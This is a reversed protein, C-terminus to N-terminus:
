DEEEKLFPFVISMKEIAKDYELFYGLLWAVPFTAAVLVVLIIVVHLLSMMLIDIMIGGM